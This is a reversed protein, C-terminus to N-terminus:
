VFFLKVGSTALLGLGLGIIIIAVAKQFWDWFYMKESFVQPYRFSLPLALLLLFVYQMGSLAQVFSVPGLYTAYIILFTASGACIKNLVFVSGTHVVTRSVARFAGIEGLIQERFTSILLLSLGGLFMGLRSWVLGSVFNAQNYGYKLLLLSVGMAVGAVIVSLPIHEYKRLPLDFSILLGGGILLAFALIHVPSFVTESFTGPFFGVGVAVFSVVTGVLPSIRSIENEKVATYLALLGYLFLVGSLLFVGTIHWGFFRFGFPVAPLVFLSFLSVFFAYVAPAKIRRALLYKDFLAAVALFFYGLLATSIWSM